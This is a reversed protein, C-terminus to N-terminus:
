EIRIELIKNKMKEAWETNWKGNPHGDDPVTMEPPISKTADIFDINLKKAFEEYQQKTDPSSVLVSLVFRANHKRCFDNMEQIIKQTTERRQHNRSHAIAKLRLHNLKQLIISYKQFPLQVYANTKDGILNDNRDIWAFPITFDEIKTPPSMAEMWIASAVNREEHPEIFNYIVIKPAYENIISKLLLYAQYTGYAGTGFNLIRLDPRMTQLKWACTERDDIGWGLTISCGMMMVVNKSPYTVSTPATARMGGLWITVKREPEEPTKPYPFEYLGAQNKWGLVPHYPHLHPPKYTRRVDPPTRDAIRFVLEGIATAISVSLLLIM